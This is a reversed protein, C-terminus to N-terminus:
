PTGNLVTASRRRFPRTGAMTNILIRTLKAFFQPTLTLIGNKSKYHIDLATSGAPFSRTGRKTVCRDWRVAHPAKTLECSKTVSKPHRM